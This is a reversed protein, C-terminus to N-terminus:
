HLSPYHDSTSEYWRTRQWLSNQKDFFFLFDSLSYPFFESGIEKFLHHHRLTMGSVEITVQIDKFLHHCFNPTTGVGTNKKQTVLTNESFDTRDRKDLNFRIFFCSAGQRSTIHLVNLLFLLLLIGFSACM